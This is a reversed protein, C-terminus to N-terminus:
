LERDLDPTVRKHYILRPNPFVVLWMGYIPSTLLTDLCIYPEDDLDLRGKWGRQM